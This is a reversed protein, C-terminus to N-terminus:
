SARVGPRYKPVRAQVTTGSGPRSEIVLGYAPGFVQRLRRDINALAGHGDTASGAAQFGGGDDHVVILCEDDQDEVRITVTGGDRATEIGYKVANEVLPQVILTPVTANVVEPEVNLRIRLREGLRAQELQLYQRTYILEDALTAFEGQPGRFARRTFDAFELVLERARDPDTRIFAAITNLANYIFHPSIQARLARLESRALAFRQQEAEQLRLQTALLEALDSAIRLAAPGPTQLHYTVLAAVPLDDVVLPVVVGSSLECTDPDLDGVVAPAAMAPRRVAPRRPHLHVLRQRGSALAELVAPAEAGVHLRHAHAPGASAPHFGLLGQRDYLGVAAAGAQEAVEALVRSASAPSLGGRLSRLTSTAFALTRLTAREELTGFGRRQRRLLLYVFLAGLATLAVQAALAAEWSMQRQDNM